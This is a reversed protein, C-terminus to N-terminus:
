KVSVGGEESEQGPLNDLYLVTLLTWIENQLNNFLFILFVM